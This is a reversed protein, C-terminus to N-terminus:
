MVMLPHIPRIARKRGDNRTGHSRTTHAHRRGPAGSAGNKRMHLRFHAHVHNNLTNDNNLLLIDFPTLLPRARSLSGVRTTLSKTM